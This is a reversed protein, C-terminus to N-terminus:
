IEPRNPPPASRNRTWVQDLTWVAFYLVVIGLSLWKLHVLYRLWPSVNAAATSAATWLIANETLDFLVAFATIWSLFRGAFSWRDSAEAAWWRLIWTFLATYLVAFVCDAGLWVYFRLYEGAQLKDMSRTLEVKNLADGGVTPPWAALAAFLVACVVALWKLALAQEQRNMAM